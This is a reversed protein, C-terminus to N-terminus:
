LSIVDALCFKPKYRRANSVNVMKSGERNFKLRCLTEGVSGSSCHEKKCTKREEPIM